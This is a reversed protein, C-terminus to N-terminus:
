WRGTGLRGTCRRGRRGVCVAMHVCLVDTDVGTMCFCALVGLGLAVVLVLVLGRGVRNARAVSDWSWVRGRGREWDRWWVVTGVKRGLTRPAPKPRFLANLPQAVGVLTVFLGLQGHVNDLHPKGDKSTMALAIVLAM